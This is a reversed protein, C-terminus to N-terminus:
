AKAYLIHKLSIQLVQVHNDPAHQKFFRVHLIVCGIGNRFGSKSTTV